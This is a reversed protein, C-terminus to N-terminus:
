SMVDVLSRLEDVTKAAMFQERLEKAGDFGQIYMKCFKNLTCVPREHQQWTAAFLAIHRRFLAKKDAHTCSPWISKAAFIYPDAFIGRGIMIGDLKYRRALAEGHQRNLVDGNGVILTPTKLEDRMHRVQNISDWDAPVKSMQQRTRGHVTLMNIKSDLLFKFWSMDVYNFGIRTKVSLPLRGALGAQTARIIDAALSRNEQKILAACAGNKVESKAPCGMNLDVGAFNIYPPLSMEHALAGSAIQDAVDHFNDPKVGWLQAIVKGESAVFRLKKLLHARGPSILGDVNVFETFFLDPPACNAVMQRFVTDTVDDMPALAFFPKPLNAYMISTM